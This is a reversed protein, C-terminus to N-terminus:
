RSVANRLVFDKGKVPQPKFFDLEMAEIGEPLQAHPLMVKLYLDQLILRGPLDPHKKKLDKCQPGAGGGVDVFLPRQPDAGEFDKMPYVDIWTQMGVRRGTLMLVLDGAWEPHTKMFEYATLDTHHGLQAPCHKPDDVDKYENRKLFEPIAQVM